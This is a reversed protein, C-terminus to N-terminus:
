RYGVTVRPLERYGFLNRSSFLGAIVFRSFGIGVSVFGSNRGYTGGCADIGSNVTRATITPAIRPTIKPAEDSYSTNFTPKVTLADIGTATM